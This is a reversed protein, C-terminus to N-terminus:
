YGPMYGPPPPGYYGPPPGYPDWGPPPGYIQQGYYPPPPGYYEPGPPPPGYPRWGPPPGFRDDGRHMPDAWPEQPVPPMAGTAESVEGNAGNASPSSGPPLYDPMPPPPMENYPYPAPPYGPAQYPDPSQTATTGAGKNAVTTIATQTEDSLVYFWGFLMVAIIAVLVPWQSKLFSVTEEAPAARKENEDQMVGMDKLKEKLEEQKNVSPDKEESM